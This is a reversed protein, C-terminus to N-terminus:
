IRFALQAHLQCPSVHCRGCHGTCVLPRSSDAQETQSTIREMTPIATAMRVLGENRESERPPLPHHHTDNSM